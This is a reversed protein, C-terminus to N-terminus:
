HKPIVHESDDIKLYKGKLFYACLKYDYINIDKGTEISKKTMEDVYDDIVLHKDSLKKKLFEFLDVSSKFYSSDVVVGVEEDNVLISVSRKVRKHM